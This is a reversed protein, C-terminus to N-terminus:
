LRDIEVGFGGTAKIYVNSGTVDIAPTWLITTAGDIEINIGQTYNDYVAGLANSGSWDSGSFYLPLTSPPYTLTEMFLYGTGTLSKNTITLEFTSGSEFNEKLLSGSGILENPTYTSAM